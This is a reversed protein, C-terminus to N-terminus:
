EITYQQVDSKTLALADDATTNVAEVEFHALMAHILIRADTCIFIADALARM